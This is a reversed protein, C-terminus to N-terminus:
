RNSTNYKIEGMLVGTFSNDNGEKRGAGVQPALIAGDTNEGLEITNGDWDNIARHGYRNILLYIPVFLEAL